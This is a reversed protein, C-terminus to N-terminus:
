PHDQNVFDFHVEAWLINFVGNSPKQLSAFIKTLIVGLNFLLNSVNCTNKKYANFDRVFARNVPAFRASAVDFGHTKM